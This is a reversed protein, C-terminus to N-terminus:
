SKAKNLKKMLRSKKRSATNKKLVRSSVAKDVLQIAARVLEAAEQKKSNIAKLAEKLAKKIAIKIKLNRDRNRKNTKVRKIASKINPM